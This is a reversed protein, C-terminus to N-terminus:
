NINNLCISLFNDQTGRLLRKSISFGNSVVVATTKSLIDLDAKTSPPVDNPCVHPCIQQLLWPHDELYVSVERESERKTTCKLADTMFYTCTKIHATHTDDPMLLSFSGYRRGATRRWLAAQFSIGWVPHSEIVPLVRMRHSSKVYTCNKCKSCKYCM